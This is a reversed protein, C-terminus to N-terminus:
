RDNQELGSRDIEDQPIPFTYRKDDPLLQYIEGNYTRELTVQFRPDMNLRRLDSWRLGRTVLEKRREELIIKLAKTENDATIPVFHSDDLKRWRKELLTNLDIIAENIKGIRAYCEARILYMEDTSLGTFVNIYSGGYSGKFMRNKEFFISKRLDNDDYKEYFEVTAKVTNLNYFSSFIRDTYYIIEKNYFRRGDRFPSASEEDLENYDLLDSQIDLALTSYKVAEDYEGMILRVRALLAFAAAKSPRSKRETGEPLLSISEVIDKIIQEYSEKLTGRKVVINVNSSTRVPVGPLNDSTEQNYPAAFQQVVQNLAYARIFLAAGKIQDFEQQNVVERNINKLGDLVVNAYFIQQYPRNWDNHSFGDYIDSKWLYTNRLVATLSTIGNDDIDFDGDAIQTLFGTYNIINSNDLLAQLDKLKNPVVFSKNPKKDLFDKTCSTSLLMLFVIIIKINIKKM